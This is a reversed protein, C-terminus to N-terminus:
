VLRALGKGGVVKGTFDRIPPFPICIDTRLQSEDCNALAEAVPRTVVLLVNRQPPPVGTIEGYTLETLPVLAAHGEVPLQGAQQPVEQVRARSPDPPYHVGAIQLAIGTLNKITM